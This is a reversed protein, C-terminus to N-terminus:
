GSQEKGKGCGKGVKGAKGKEAKPSPCDRAIHGTGGCNYCAGSVANIDEGYSHDSSEPLCPGEPSDVWQWRHGSGEDYAVPWHELQQIAPDGGQMQSLFIVKERVEAYTPLRDLHELIKEAM